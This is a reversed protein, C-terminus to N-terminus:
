SRVACARVRWTGGAAAGPLPRRDAHCLRQDGHELHARVGQDGAPGRLQDLRAPGPRAARDDGRDAARAGSQRLRAAPLGRDGRRGADLLARVAREADAPDLPRVCRAATTWASTSWSGCIASSWAAAAQDLRPRLAAAHAPQPDGPRRSLGQHHDPRHPRGQARPDRELRGHHRPAGRRDRRRRDRARRVGRGAGRRDRPRLRRRQVVGKQTHVRGDAGLLVIDTFTGGIDVGIRFAGMGGGRAGGDTAGSRPCPPGAARQGCSRACGRPRRRM